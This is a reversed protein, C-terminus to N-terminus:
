SITSAAADLGAPYLRRPILSGWEGVVRGCFFAGRLLAPANAFVVAQRAPTLLLEGRVPRVVARSQASQLANEGGCM